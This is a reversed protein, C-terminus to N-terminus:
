PHGLFGIKAPLTTQVECGRAAWAPKSIIAAPPLATSAITAVAMVMESTSGTELPM